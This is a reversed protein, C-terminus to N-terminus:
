STIHMVKHVSSMPIFWIDRDEDYRGGVEKLLQLHPTVDGSIEALVGGKDQRIEIRGTTKQRRKERLLRLAIGDAIWIGISENWQAGIDELVEGDQDNVVLVAGSEKTKNMIDEYRPNANNKILEEVSPHPPAPFDQKAFALVYTQMDESMVTLYVDDLIYGLGELELAKGRPIIKDEDVFYYAGAFAQRRLQDLTITHRYPWQGLVVM